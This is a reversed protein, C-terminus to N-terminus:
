EGLDVNLTPNSSSSACNSPSTYPTLGLSSTGSGIQPQGATALWSPQSPGGVMSTAVPAFGTQGSPPALEGLTMGQQSGCGASGTYGQGFGLASSGFMGGGFAPFAAPYYVPYLRGQSWSAPLTLAPHNTHSPVNLKPASAEDHIVIRPPPPPPPAQRPNALAPAAGILILAVAAPAAATRITM